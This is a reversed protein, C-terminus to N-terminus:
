QVHAAKRGGQSATLDLLVPERQERVYMWLAWAPKECSPNEIFTSCFFEAKPATTSIFIWFFDVTVACLASLHTHQAEQSLSVGVGHSSEQWFVFTQEEVKRDEEVAYM